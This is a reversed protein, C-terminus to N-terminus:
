KNVFNRDFVETHNNHINGNKYDEDLSKVLKKMFNDFAKLSKAVGKSKRFSLKRRGYAMYSDEPKILYSKERNELIMDDSISSNIDETNIGSYFKVSFMDNLANLNTMKDESELYCDIYLDNNGLMKRLRANCFSKPLYKSYISKIEDIYEQVTTIDKAEFINEEISELIYESLGRM